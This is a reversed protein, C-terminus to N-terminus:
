VIGDVITINTGVITAEGNEAHNAAAEAFAAAVQARTAGHELSNVWFAAGDTDGARGLAHTYLNAVFDANSISDDTYEAAKLFGDAIATLSTGHNALNFWYELGGFDADRGLLAEYLHAVAAEKENAAFVLAKYNDLQVYQVKTVDIDQGNTAHSIVAHGDEVTVTYDTDAGTLQVITHGGGEVTSDGQAAVVTDYGHGAVITDGNNATVHTNKADVITIKDAQATTVIVRQVGTSGAGQPASPNPEGVAIGSVVTDNPNGVVLNASGSGGLIITSTNGTITLATDSAAVNVFGLETDAAFTVKGDTAITPNNDIKIAPDGVTSTLALINAITKETFVATSTSRLASTVTSTDSDYM